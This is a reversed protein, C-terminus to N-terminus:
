YSILFQPIARHEVSVFFKKKKQTSKTSTKLQKHKVFRARGKTKACFGICECVVRFKANTQSHHPRVTPRDSPRETVHYGFKRPHTSKNVWPAGRACKARPAGSFLSPLTSFPCTLPCPLVLLSMFPCTLVFFSLYRCLFVLFSPFPSTLVYFSLYPCFLVLLSM